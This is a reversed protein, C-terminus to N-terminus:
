RLLGKGQPGFWSSPKNEKNSPEKLIPRKGARLVRIGGAWQPDAAAHAYISTDLYHNERYIVVWEWQGKKNNLSKYIDLGGYGGKRDSVFYLENGNVSEFAQSNWSKANVPKKLKKM